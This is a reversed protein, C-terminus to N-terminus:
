HTSTLLYFYGCVRVPQASHEQLCSGHWPSPCQSPLPSERHGWKVMKKGLSQQHDSSQPVLSSSQSRWCCMQALHGELVLGPGMSFRQAWLHCSTPLLEASLGAAPAVPLAATLPPFCRSRVAHLPSAPQSPHLLSGGAQGLQALHPM